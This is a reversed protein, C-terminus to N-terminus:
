NYLRFKKQKAPKTSIVNKMCKITITFNHINSVKKRPKLYTRSNLILSGFKTQEVLYKSTDPTKTKLHM